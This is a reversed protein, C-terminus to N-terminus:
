RAPEHAKKLLEIVKDAFAYPAMQGFEGGRAQAILERMMGEEMEIKIKKEPEDKM